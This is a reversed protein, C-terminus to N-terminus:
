GEETKVLPVDRWDNKCDSADRYQLVTEPIPMHKDLKGDAGIGWTEAGSPRVLWRLELM